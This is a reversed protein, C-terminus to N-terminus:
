IPNKFKSVIVQAEKAQGWYKTDDNVLKVETEINQFLLSKTVKLDKNFIQKIKEELFEVNPSSIFPNIIVEEIFDLNELNILIHNSDSLDFAVNYLVLRVEKEYEFNKRKLFASYMYDPYLIKDKYDFIKHMENTKFDLYKIPGIFINCVWYDFEGTLKKNQNIFSSFILKSLLIPNIKICVTENDFMQQENMGHLKWLSEVDYEQTMSYGFLNKAIHKKRDDVIARIPYEFTDAWSIIKTMRFQKNEVLQKLYKFRMIHYLPQNLDLEKHAAVSDLNLIIATGM